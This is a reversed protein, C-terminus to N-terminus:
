SRVVDAAQVGLIRRVARRARAPARRDGFLQVAQNLGMALGQLEFALQDPDTDASLEGHAVATRVESRLVNRWRKLGEQVQAHLAGRRADYETSAATWFCGGPFTRGAIHGIWNDCVALLRELGPPRDAAPLWVERRFVESAQKLAALQLETKSGFQGIVGAKSMGLDHALRGITVGELGDVSAVQVARGIISERTRAAEAVSNRPM